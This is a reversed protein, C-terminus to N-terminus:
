RLPRGPDTKAAVKWPATAGCWCLANELVRQRLEPEGGLGIAHKWGKEATTRRLGDDEWARRITEALAEPDEPPVFLAEDSLVDSAGAGETIIVCKGLYMANLYVGVGALLNSALMPLAVLRAGEIIRTMAQESGDDDLLKVNPPLNELPRTFRSGHRRLAAFDPRPIAAPYPLREVAAFFADYDRRSRGFCLVYEGDPSPQAEYRYRLNPKFHVFSSREPTIGYFREYGESQKFYNVFHGVQRLLGKKLLTAARGRFGAPRGLVLDVAVLPKRRWPFLTFWACLKLTLQVDCNVIILDCGPAERVFDGFSGLIRATGQLGSSGCWTEPFREFNTLLHM